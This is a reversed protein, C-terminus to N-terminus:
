KQSICHDLVKWRVGVGLLGAAWATSSMVESLWGRRDHAGGDATSAATAAATGITMAPEIICEAESNPGVEVEAFMRNWVGICRCITDMSALARDGSLARLARAACM